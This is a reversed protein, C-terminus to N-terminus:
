HSGIGINAKPRLPPTSLLREPQLSLFVFNRGCATYTHLQCSFDALGEDEREERNEEQRLKVGRTLSLDDGGEGGGRERGLAVKCVCGRSLGQECGEGQEMTRAGISNPAGAVLWLSWKCVGGGRRQYVPGMIGAERERKSM